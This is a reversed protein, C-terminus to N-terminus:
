IKNTIYALIHKAVNINTIEYINKLHANTNVECIVPGDDTQLIDVGCFDCGLAKSAKIALAKEEKTPEYNKATGGNSLNSRFDGNTSTRKMSAVIKGGVLNIRIDSGFCECYYRQFLLEKGHEAKILDFLEKETQVLYVQQGESGYWKKAVLPLSIENIIKEIFNEIYSKKYNFLLPLIYTKPIPLKNESLIKYTEAKNDCSYISKSSNFVKYGQREFSQALFIDKDYFLVASCKPFCKTEGIYHSLNTNTVTDLKIGLGKATDFLLQNQFKFKDSDLSVNTVLLIQKITKIKKEICLLMKQIATMVTKLQTAGCFDSVLRCNIELLVSMIGANACVRSVVNPQDADFPDNLLVTFNLKKLFDSMINSLEPCHLLNKNEKGGTSICFDLEREPSLQHLDLVFEINNNKCYKILNDRYASKEDFNADDNENKTKIICPYGLSNLYLAILATEPEAYKIKENRLQEVAHPASILINKTGGLIVHNKQSNKLEEFKQKLNM